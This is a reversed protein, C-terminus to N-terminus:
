DVILKKVQNQVKVLYTGSAFNSTSIKIKKSDYIKQRHKIKGCLDIIQLECNNYGNSEVYFLNSDVPNPYINFGRKIKPDDISTGDSEFNATISKSRNMTIHVPNDTSNIDGSWGTFIYNEDPTATLTVMSNKYFSLAFPEFGISGNEATIDLSFQQPPVGKYVISDIFAALEEGMTQHQTKNPHTDILFSFEYFHADYGQDNLEHVVESSYTFADNQINGPALVIKTNFKGHKDIIKKIIEIYAQKWDDPNDFANVDGFNDNIGFGFIVVDPTYRTFDWESYTNGNENSPNLKNYTTELGTTKSQYWGTNDKVALGGIANNHVQANLIRACSNAYSCYGNNEGCDGDDGECGAGVGATFSDGYFELKLKDPLNGPLIGKENDLILGRFQLGFIGAGPDEMKYITLDHITDSLDTALEFTDVTNAQINKIVPENDDIIFGIKSEEKSKKDALIAKLSTGEFKVNISSGAYYMIPGNEPSFNIRGQTKYYSDFPNDPERSSVANKGINYLYAYLAMKGRMTQRPTFEGHAWVYRTNFYAEGRPWNEFDPYCHEALTPPCGMTMGCAWGDMNLYPTHGPHLGKIGDNRGSTYCNEISRISQLATTATTMQIRNMPNRGLGYDAELVLASEFAQKEDPDDTLAHALITRHVNQATRFYGSNSSTARRSPRVTTHNVEKQKAQYIISKKMFNHLVAYNIDQDTFLYGATAWLQDYQNAKKVESTSSSVVTENTIVDEYDTNGTVDYLYAAAMMKLDKGRLTSYGADHVDELMPDDLNAAYNYANVASDCYENMLDTHGAIKFCSALMAANAANAWAAIATEGAQFLENKDNPNTLGHCYAKGHRLNLWFDVENRAEDIVDPIGNGSEAIGLNDDGIAGKSIYYPLLLDYINSIHGLHRDWDLADSHGGVANPNTPAGEKIYDDFFDPQDWRDGSGAWDPHYPHMNTLIIKCDDPDTDPIFLPQRPVPRMDMNDQGIRMYFYGKLSIKFPHYYIENKIKFDQSCGVDEIVLRYTGPTTFGTFDAKWVDSQTLNYGGVDSKSNKWFEVTGVEHSTENNIDYLYVTNGEFGSYDRAGMDGMWCYLDAAKTSNSQNYGVLNVHIAESVSNFIDYKFSHTLVDTNTNKDIEITYTKGQQMSNPMKLFIFHDYTYKYVYDNNSWNMQAHGNMKTKRYIEAPNVGQQGFNSDDSSKILWNTKTVAMDTDLPSGYQVVWNDSAESHHGHYAYPGSADDKFEVDGDKFYIMIYDKDVVKVHIFKTAEVKCIILFSLSLFFLIKKM